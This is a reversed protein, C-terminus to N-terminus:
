LVTNVKKMSECLIQMEDAFLTDIFHIILIITDMTHKSEIDRALHELQSKSDIIEINHTYPNYHVM